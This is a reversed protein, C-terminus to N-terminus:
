RKTKGLTPPEAMTVVNNSVNVHQAAFSSVSKLAELAAVKVTDGCPAHIIQMIGDVAVRAASGDNGVHIATACQPHENPKTM